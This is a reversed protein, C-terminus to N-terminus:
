WPQCHLIQFTCAQAPPSPTASLPSDSCGLVSARCMARGRRRRVLRVSSIGVCGRGQGGRLHVSRWGRQCKFVGGVRQVSVGEGERGAGACMALTGVALSVCAEGEVCVDSWGGCECACVGETGGRGACQCMCVRACVYCVCLVGAETSM